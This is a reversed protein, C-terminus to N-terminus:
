PLEWGENRLMDCLAILPLGILANPDDGELKEVLAIGLGEIRASGACDYPEEARLYREIQADSYNRMHVIVPVLATQQRATRANFLCLATHFHVPKGRMQRLQAVANAFNGPKDLVSDGVVAVQDSGIILADPWARQVAQAKSCALRLALVEPTEGNLPTEDVNPTAVEFPIHLRALLDCRYRSTSALVLPAPAPHPM